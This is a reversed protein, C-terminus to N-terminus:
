TFNSSAVYVDVCDNIMDYSEKPFLAAHLVVIVPRGLKKTMKALDANLSNLHAVDTKKIVHFSVFMDIYPPVLKLGRYRRHFREYLYLAYLLPHEIDVYIDISSSM